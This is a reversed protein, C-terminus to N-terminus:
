PGDMGYRHMVIRYLETLDDRSIDKLMAGFSIYVKDARNEGVIQYVGKKGQKIIKYTAISPPKTAIPVHNILVNTGSTSEVKESADDKESEDEDTKEFHLGKRAIQKRTKGSKKTSEEAKAEDVKEEAPQVDKHEIKQYTDVQRVLNEFEEKIEEFTLRKLQTLKWTGQNMEVMKKAFEKGQLEGGLMSKSLEENAEIKARILYWDEDTYHQAEFQVQARKQKQQETLEDEKAEEQLIQEKTKKPAKEIIMLAKGERQIRPPSPISIKTSDTNVPGSGTNVEISGTNIVESGTNVAQVYGTSVEEQFDLGTVVD